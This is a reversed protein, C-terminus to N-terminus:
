LREGSDLFQLKIREGTESLVKATYFKGDAFKVTSENPMQALAIQHMLGAIIFAIFTKM